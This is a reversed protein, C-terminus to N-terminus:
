RALNMNGILGWSILSRRRNREMTLLDVRQGPRLELPPMADPSQTPNMVEVIPCTDGNAKQFVRYFGLGAFGLRPQCVASLAHENGM